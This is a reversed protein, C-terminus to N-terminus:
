TAHFFFSVDFHGEEAVTLSFPMVPYLVPVGLRGNEPHFASEDGHEVYWGFLIDVLM